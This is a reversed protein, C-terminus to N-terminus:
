IEPLQKPSVTDPAVFFHKTNMKATVYCHKAVRWTAAPIPTPDNLCLHPFANNLAVSAEQAHYHPITSCVHHLVHTTGIHHHLIDFIFPYARDVTAFAGKM